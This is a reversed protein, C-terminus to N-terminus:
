PGVHILLVLKYLTMCSHPPTALLVTINECKAGVRLILLCQLPEAANALLGRERKIWYRGM